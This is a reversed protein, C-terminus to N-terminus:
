RDIISTHVFYWVCEGQLPELASNGLEFGIEGHNVAHDLAQLLDRPKDSGIFFSPVPFSALMYSLFEKIIIEGM